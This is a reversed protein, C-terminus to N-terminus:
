KVQCFNNVYNDSLTYDIYDDVIDNILDEEHMIIRHKLMNIWKEIDETSRLKKLFVFEYNEAYTIISDNFSDGYSVEKANLIGVFIKLKEEFNLM